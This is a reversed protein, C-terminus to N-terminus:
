FWKVGSFGEVVGTGLTTWRQDLEQDDQDEQPGSPFTWVPDVLVNVEKSPGSVVVGLASVVVVLALTVVVLLGVVVM